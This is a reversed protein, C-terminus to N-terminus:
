ASTRYTAQIVGDAFTHTEVLQLSEAIGTGGLIGVGSGLVVPLVSIIYETVLGERQFAGALKGGGVLWTRRHGEDALQTLVEAPSAKSIAVNSTRPALTRQSMVIVPKDSYPWEDFGMVQEYTTSGMVLSDVSKYFSRYGYDESSNEFPALWDLSGDPPALFGDVSTAVYYLCEIM